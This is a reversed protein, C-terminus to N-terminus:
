IAGAKSIPCMDPFAELLNRGFQVGGVRVEAASAPGASIVLDDRISHRVIGSGSATLAALLCSCLLIKRRPPMLM